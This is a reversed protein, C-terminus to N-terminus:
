KADIEQAYIDSAQPPKYDWKVSKKAAKVAEVAAVGAEREDEAEVEVKTTCQTLGAVEVEFKPM